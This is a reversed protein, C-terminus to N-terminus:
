NIMWSLIDLHSLRSISTYRYTCRRPFRKLPNPYPGDKEQEREWWRSYKKIVLILTTMNSWAIRSWVHCLLLDSPSWSGLIMSWLIWMLEPGGGRSKWTLSFFFFEASAVKIKPNRTMKLCVDYNWEMLSFLCFSTICQGAKIMRERKKQDTKKRVQQINCATLNVIASRGSCFYRELSVIAASVPYWGKAGFWGLWILQNKKGRVLFIKFLETIGNDVRWRIQCTDKRWPGTWVIARKRRLGTWPLGAVGWERYWKNPM